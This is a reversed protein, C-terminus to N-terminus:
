QEPHFHGQSHFPPIIKMCIFPRVNKHHKAEHHKSPYDVLIDAGPHWFVKYYKRTVQDCVGFYRMEMSCAQHTKVTGNVIGTAIENDCHIPTHPAIHTVWNRYPSDSFEEKKQINLIM